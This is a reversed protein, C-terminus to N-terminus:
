IRFSPSIRIPDLSNKENESEKQIKKNKNKKLFDIIKQAPTPFFIHMIGVYVLDPILALLPGILVIIWTKGNGLVEFFLGPFEPQFVRAVRVTNLVITM